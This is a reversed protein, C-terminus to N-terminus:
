SLNTPPATIAGLHNLQQLREPLRTVMEAAFAQRRYHGCQHRRQLAMAM